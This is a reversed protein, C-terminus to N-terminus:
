LLIDKPYKENIQLITHGFFFGAIVDIIYMKIIKSASTENKSLVLRLM